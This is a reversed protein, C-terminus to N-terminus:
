SVLKFSSNYWVLGTRSSESTQMFASGTNNKFSSLNHFIMRSNYMSLWGSLSEFIRSLPHLKRVLSSTLVYTDIILLVLWRADVNVNNWWLSINRKVLNINNLSLVWDTGIAYYFRSLIYYLLILKIFYVKM